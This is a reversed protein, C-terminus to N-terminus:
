HLARVGHATRPAPAARAALLPPLPLPLRLALHATRRAGFSALVSLIHEADLKRPWNARGPLNILHLSAPSSSFFFFVEQAVHQLWDRLTLTGGRKFLPGVGHAPSMTMLGSVINSNHALLCFGGLWRGCRTRTSATGALLM